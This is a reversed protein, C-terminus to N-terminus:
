FSFPIIHHFFHAARARELTRQRRIIFHQLTPDDRIAANPPKPADPSRRCTRECTGYLHNTHILIHRTTTADACRAHWNAHAHWVVVFFFTRAHTRTKHTGPGAQHYVRITNLHTSLHLRDSIIARQQTTFATNRASRFRVNSKIITQHSQM